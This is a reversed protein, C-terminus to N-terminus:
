TKLDLNPPQPTKNKFEKLNNSSKHNKDGHLEEVKVEVPSFCLSCIQTEIQSKM